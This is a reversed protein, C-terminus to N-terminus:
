REIKVFIYPTEQNLDPYIRGREHNDMLEIFYMLDWKPDIQSAPVVAEYRNDGTPHMELTQYTLHQKVSRYRLHVWKIGVPSTATIEIRLPQGLPSRRVPTHHVNFLQGFKIHPIAKYHPSIKATDPVKFNEKQENLKTLDQKLLELEDKWSGCLEAVCVGMKLNDAYVGSATKVIDSWADIAQKEYKIADSLVTTDGTQKFLQYSVAAPIRRAHYLALNSLIKLDVITSNFEKTKHNGIAIEAKSILKNIEVSKEEFWNSTASPLLKATHGGQIMLGAAEKFNAFQMIDSGEANSYAALNGLRQKEAWGRTMPFLRYPYVSAIIRPLIWSAEHLAKELYTGAQGFRVNFQHEWVEPDTQPNYGIRGFVQFFHWYREFEWQYYRYQPSLLQFPLEDQPQAEMKTALPENVEYGDGDYLLTSKAFRAVYGPDGWLLIRATGGNWLRWHVNYKKPYILLDAYGHRRYSREPNIQTPHFPLGMQEMWYKTDIRFKVGIDIANQIISNPLEKARLDLRLNPAITKTMKFVASWFNAEEEVKLGSEGHMRFQIADIGPVVKIFKELAAKTYSTLNDATVGWVLGPVPRDPEKKTGPIGGGQVGGRYIHDWIGVTFDIGREHCMDILKNLADLNKQQESSTLGIMKVEPFGEVDFFYPYCPALFGGNEYGFILVFRDFRNQALMDLYREWYKQDYFRSEWYARNMTYVSIAREKVYPSETSEKVKELPNSPTTSWGIREALELLGYMLGRDDYGNIVWTQKGSFKVPWITLSEAKDPISHHNEQMIHAAPGDGTSLGAVILHKGKAKDLSHITEYPISKDELAATLKALGHAAAITTPTDIIISYEPDAQGSVKNVMFLLGYLFLQFIVLKRTCRPLNM